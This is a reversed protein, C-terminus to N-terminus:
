KLMGRLYKEQFLNIIVFAHDFDNYIVEEHIQLAQAIKFNNTNCGVLIAINDNTWIDVFTCDIDKSHLRKLVQIHSWEIDDDLKFIDWDDRRFLKSEDPDYQCYKCEDTEEFYNNCIECHKMM